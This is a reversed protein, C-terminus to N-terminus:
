PALNVVQVRRNEQAYPKAPNKLNERGYGVAIMKGEPLNFTKVLYARVAQARRESLDQNYSARGKADTHGAVLIDSASMEQDQLAKGLANLAPMASEAITASNFEFAIELNASPRTEVVSALAAREETSASLGRTAKDKLALILQAAKPDTVQGTAGTKPNVGRTTKSKLAELLESSSPGAAQSLAPTVGALVLACVVWSFSTAPKTVRSM